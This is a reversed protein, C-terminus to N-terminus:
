KSEPDTVPLKSLVTMVAGATLLYSGIESLKPPVGPIAMLGTGAASLYLGLWQLKKFFAPSEKGLRHVLEKIWNM